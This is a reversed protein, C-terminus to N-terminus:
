RFEIRIHHFTRVGNQLQEAYEVQFARGDALNGFATVSANAGRQGLSDNRVSENFLSASGVLRSPLAAVEGITLKQDAAVAQLEVWRVFWTPVAGDGRFFNEAPYPDDLSRWLTSGHVKLPCGVASGSPDIFDLLNFDAPICEPSRFFFIVAWDDTHPLFGAALDAYVPPDIDQPINLRIQAQVLTAASLTALAFALRALNQLTRM